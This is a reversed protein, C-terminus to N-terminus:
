LLLRESFDRKDSNDMTTLYLNKSKIEFSNVLWLNGVRWSCSIIEIASNEGAFKMFIFAKKIRNGSETNRTVFSTGTISTNTVVGLEKRCKILFENLEERSVEEKLSLTSHNYIDTYDGEQISSHWMKEANKAVESRVTFNRLFVIGIIPILLLFFLFILGTTSKVNTATKGTTTKFGDTKENIYAHFKLFEEKTIFAGAPILFSFLNTHVHLYENTIEPANVSSWPIHGSTDGIFYTIGDPKLELKKEKKYYYQSEFRNQVIWTVISNLYLNRLLLFGIDVCLVAPYFSGQFGSVKLSLYATFLFWQLLMFTIWFFQRRETRHYTKNKSYLSTKVFDKVKNNYSVEM